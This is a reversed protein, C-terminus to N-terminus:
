ISYQLQEQSNSKPTIDTKMVCVTNKPPVRTNSTCNILEYNKNSKFLAQSQLFEVFKEFSPHNSIGHKNEYSQGFKPWDSQVSRPLRSRTNEIGSALDLYRLEPCRGDGKNFKFSKM